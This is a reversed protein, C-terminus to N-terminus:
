VVPLEPRVGNNVANMQPHQAVNAILRLVVRGLVGEGFFRGACRRMRGYYTLVAHTSEEETEDQRAGSGRLRRGRGGNRYYVFVSDRNGGSANREM